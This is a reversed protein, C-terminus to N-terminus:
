TARFSHQVRRSRPLRAVRTLQDRQGFAELDPLVSAPRSRLTAGIRDGLDVIGANGVAWGGDKHLAAWAGACVPELTFHRFAPVSKAGM